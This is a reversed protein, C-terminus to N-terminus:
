FRLTLQVLLAAKKFIAGIMKRTTRCRADDDLEEVDPGNDFLVPSKAIKRWNAEKKIQYKLLM